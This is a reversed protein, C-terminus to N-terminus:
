YNTGEPPQPLKRNQPQAMERRLDILVHEMTKSRNWDRLTPFSRSDVSGNPSVCAMNIKTVFRIQPPREPYTEDCYIALTYIRGDHM